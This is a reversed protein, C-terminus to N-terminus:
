AIKSKLFKMKMSIKTTLNAIKCNGSIIEFHSLSLITTLSKWLALYTETQFVRIKNRLVAWFNESVHLFLKYCTKKKRSYPNWSFLSLSGHLQSRLPTCSLNRMLCYHQLYRGVRPLLVKPPRLISTGDYCVSFQQLLATLLVESNTIFTRFLPYSTYSITM